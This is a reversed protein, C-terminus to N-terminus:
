DRKRGAVLMAIATLGFVAGLGYFIGPLLYLSRQSAIVSEAPKAPDYLLEISDGAQHAPHSTAVHSRSSYEHGDQAVYRYCTYYTPQDFGDDPGHPELATVTGTVAQWTAAKGKADMLVGTAIGLWILSIVVGVWGILRFAKRHTDPSLNFPLSTGQIQVGTKAEKVQGRDRTLTDDLWVCCM